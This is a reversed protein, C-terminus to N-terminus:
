KPCPRTELLTERLTKVHPSGNVAPPSHKKHETPRAAPVPQLENAPSQNWLTAMFAQVDVPHPLTRVDISTAAFDIEVRANPRKSIRHASFRLGRLTGHRHQAEEIAKACLATVELVFERGSIENLYSVYGHWRVPSGTHCLDCSHVTPPTTSRDIWASCPTTRHTAWHTPCGVLQESTIIGGVSGGVPCRTLRIRAYDREEPPSTSWDPM